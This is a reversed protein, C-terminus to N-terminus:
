LGLAKLAGSKYSEGNPKTGLLLWVGMQLSFAGLQSTPPAEIVYCLLVVIVNHVPEHKNLWKFDFHSRCM